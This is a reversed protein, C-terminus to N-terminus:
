GGDGIRVGSGDTPVRPMRVSRRDSADIAFEIGGCRADKGEFQSEFRAGIGVRVTERRALEVHKQQGTGSFHGDAV